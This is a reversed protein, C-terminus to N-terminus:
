AAHADVHVHASGPGHDSGIAGDPVRVRREACEDSEVLRREAMEAPALEHVRRVAAIHGGMEHLHEGAARM